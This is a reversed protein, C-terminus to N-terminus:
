DVSLMDAQVHLKADSIIVVRGDIHYVLGCLFLWITYNLITYYNLTKYAIHINKKIYNVYNYGM